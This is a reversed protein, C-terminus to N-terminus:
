TTKELENERFSGVYKGDCYRVVYIGDNVDIVRGFSGFGGKIVVADGVRFKPKNPKPKDDLLVILSRLM